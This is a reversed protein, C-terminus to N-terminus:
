SSLEKFYKAVLKKDAPLKRFERMVMGINNMGNDILESVKKKIDEESMQKPLYKSLIAIESEAEKNGHSLSEKLSKSTKEIIKQVEENSLNEVNLNKEQTQIEGKIVSLLKKNLDKKAKFAKIYDENIKEKLTKAM